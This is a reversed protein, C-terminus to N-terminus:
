DGRSRGAVEALLRGLAQSTHRVDFRESAIPAYALAAARLAHRELIVREMASALAEPSGPPVVLAPSGAVVERLGICNSAILPCGAILAEMAAIGCAEWLSPMLQADSARLQGAVAGLFGQFRFLSRLGSREIEARYERIFGGDGCVIILFDFRRALLKCAGIIDVFGKQPMPRGVFVFRVPGLQPIDGQDQSPFFSTPDVGNM